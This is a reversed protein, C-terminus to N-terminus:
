FSYKYNVMFNRPAGYNGVEYLSSIYKEDTLNNLNLQLRSHDDIEWSMFANLLVLSDQNIEGGTYGNITSIDSQYRGGLGLSVGPLQPLSANVSFNVMDRPVWTYTDAGNQDELELITYGLLVGVYENIAGSIELEVGDSDIDEGTYFYQGSEPNLGAYTGLNQQEAKFAALTTLVRGEFWEAKVGLEYNVGKSPALYDGDLGYYDQPQYIDSYNAYAMINETIDYGLGVYPSIESESLESTQSTAGRDFRIANIGLVSSFAGFRLRTAAYYRTIEDDVEGYLEEPGWAPEAVVDGAFPFGPLPDLAPDMNAVPNTFQDRTSEGYNIGFILEHQSGFLEYDGSLNADYLHSEDDTAWKGPLGVLGEGTVPDLGTETSAFFLQSGDETTRYNYSLKLDWSNPLVYSYEMFADQRDVDWYTWDQTTSASVDWEAQTGDNNDFVLGGWMNGDSGAKQYSYGFAITSNQTLQGDVVGYVFTRDNELDRLWSESEESAVALRGAWNGDRTLPTSYDAQLRMRDWTGASVSVNGQRDNYPRKRVYNITGSANGVGTLLGNAGRIVEIKEYGFTDVAGKVLGWNNPMGIGDLQTSKIEFGRAEYSTRNTEWREVRVGTAMDLADNIDNAAYNEMMESDIVSISQPTEKIEMNLGTAGRSIRNDRVGTILMEEIGSQQANAAVPLTMSIAVALSSLRLLKTHM